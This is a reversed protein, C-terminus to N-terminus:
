PKPLRSMAEGSRTSGKPLWVRDIVGVLLSPLRLIGQNMYPAPRFLPHIFRIFSPVGILRHCGSVFIQAEIPTVDGQIGIFEVPIHLRGSHNEM